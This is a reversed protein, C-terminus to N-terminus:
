KPLSQSISMLYAILDSRDQADPVSYGMKQGPVVSEPDTLWRDLNRQTWVLDSAKLAPSYEYGPATGARRGFVGRHAPGTRNTDVSHCAACRSDYLQKGRVADGNWESANVSFSAMLALGISMWATTM